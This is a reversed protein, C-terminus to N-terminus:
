RVKNRARYEKDYAAKASRCEDCRCKRYAYTSTTGHQIQDETYRMERAHHEIHCEECLFDCKNLEEVIRAESWSWIRHSAKKSPDRHHIHLGEDAGCEKCTEGSFFMERRKQVWIRQYERQQERDKYPM